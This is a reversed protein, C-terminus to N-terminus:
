DGDNGGTRPPVKIWKDAMESPPPPSPDAQPAQPPHHLAWWAEMKELSGFCELPAYNHLFMAWAHMAAINIHDARAFAEMLDNMLLAHMFDGMFEPRPEGKEIWWTIAEHMHDPLLHLGERYDAMPM